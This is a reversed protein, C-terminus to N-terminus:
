DGEDLEPGAQEAAQPAVPIRGGSCAFAMSFDALSGPKPAEYKYDLDAAQWDQLKTGSRNNRYVLIHSSRQACNFSFLFRETRAPTRRGARVQNIAWIQVATFRRFESVPGTTRMTDRDVFLEDGEPSDAINVLNEAYAPMAIMMTACLSLCFAARIALNGGEM